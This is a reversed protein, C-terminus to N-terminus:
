LTIGQVLIGFGRKKVAVFSGIAGAYVGGALSLFIDVNFDGTLRWEKVAPVALASASAWFVSLIRVVTSIKTGLFTVFTAAFMPPLRAMLASLTLPVQETTNFMGEPFLSTNATSLSNNHALGGGDEDLQNHTPGIAQSRRRYAAVTEVGRTTLMIGGHVESLSPVSVAAPAWAM